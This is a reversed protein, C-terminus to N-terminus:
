LSLNKIATQTQEDMHINLERMFSDESENELDFDEPHFTFVLLGHCKDKPNTRYDIEFFQGDEFLAFFEVWQCFHDTAYDVVELIGEKIRSM